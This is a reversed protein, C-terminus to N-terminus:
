EDLGYRLELFRRMPLQADGQNLMMVVFLDRELYYLNASLHGIARGVNGQHDGLPGTMILYGLGNAMGPEVRRMAEWTAEGLLEGSRLAQHYRLLDVASTVISGDASNPLAEDAFSCDRLEGQATVWGPMGCYGRARPRASTKEEYLYTHELGLRSAIREELVKGLSKGTAIEIVQGVLLGNTNSYSQQTGPEFTPERGPMMEIIQSPTHRESFFEPVEEQSGLLSLATFYDPIGSTHNLLMRITIEDGRPWELFGSLLDDLRLRGEEVLQLAITAFVNKSISGIFFPTEPRLPVEQRTDAYGACAALPAGGEEVLAVVIGPVGTEERIREIQSRLVEVETPPNRTPTSNATDASDSTSCALAPCLPMAILFAICRNRGMSNM